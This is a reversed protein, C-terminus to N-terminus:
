VLKGIAARMDEESLKSVTRQFPQTKASGCKPCKLEDKKLFVEGCSKCKVTPEETEYNKGTSKSYGRM